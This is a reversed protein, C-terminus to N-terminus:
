KTCIIYCSYKRCLFRRIRGRKIKNKGHKVTPRKTAGFLNQIVFNEAREERKSDSDAEDEFNLDGRLPVYNEYIREYQNGEKDTFVEPILGGQKREENTNRVISKAFNKINKIKTKWLWTIDIDM